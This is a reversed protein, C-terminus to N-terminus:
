SGLGNQAARQLIGVVRETVRASSIETVKWPSTARSTGQREWIDGEWVNVERHTVDADLQLFPYRDQQPKASIKGELSMWLIIRATHFADSRREEIAGDGGDRRLREIISEMSPKIVSNSLEEFDQLFKDREVKEAAQREAFARERSSWVTLAEDIERYPDQSTPPSSSPDAAETRRSSPPEERAEALNAPEAMPRGLDGVNVSLMGRNTGQATMEIGTPEIM